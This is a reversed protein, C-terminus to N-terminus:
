CRGLQHRKSPVGLSMGMVLESKQSLSLVTHTPGGFKVFDLVKLKLNLSSRYALPNEGADGYLVRLWHLDTRLRTSGPNEGAPSGIGGLRGTM